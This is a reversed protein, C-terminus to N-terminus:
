FNVQFQMYEVAFIVYFVEHCFFVFLIKKGDKPKQYQRCPTCFMKSGDYHLWTRKKGEHDLYWEDKFERKRNNKDYHRDKEIKKQLSQKAKKAPTDPEASTSGIRKVFRDM